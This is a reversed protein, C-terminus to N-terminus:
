SGSTCPWGRAKGLSPFSRRPARPALRDYGTALLGLVGALRFAARRLERHTTLMRAEKAPNHHRSLSPHGVRSRTLTCYTCGGIWLTRNEIVGAANHPMIVAFRIEAGFTRRKQEGIGWITVLDEPTAPRRVCLEDLTRDWFLAYPPVGLERAKRFRWDRLAERLGCTRGDPSRRCPSPAGASRQRSKKPVAPEWSGLRAQARNHMVERGADTIALVPYRLGEQRLYGQRILAQIMAQVQRKTM